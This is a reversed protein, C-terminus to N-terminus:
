APTGPLQVGIDDDHGPDVSPAEVPPNPKRDGYETLPEAPTHALPAEPTSFAEGEKVSDPADEPLVVPEEVEPAAEEVVAQIEAKTLSAPVEVGKAAAEELLQAKTKAM